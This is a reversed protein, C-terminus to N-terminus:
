ILSVKRRLYKLIRVRKSSVIEMRRKMQTDKPNKTLHDQYVQIRASFIGAEFKIRDHKGQVEPSGTDHPERGLLEVMRNLNFRMRQRGSANELAVIRRVMEAQEDETSLEDLVKNGNMKLARPTDKFLFELQSAELHYNYFPGQVSSCPVAKEGFAKRQILPSYSKTPLQLITTADSISEMKEQNLSPLRVSTSKKESDMEKSDLQKQEDALKLEQLTQDLNGPIINVVPAQDQTALLDLLRQPPPIPPRQSASTSSRKYTTPSTRKDRGIVAYRDGLKRKLQAMKKLNQEHASRSIRLHLPPYRSLQLISTSLSRRSISEIGFRWM